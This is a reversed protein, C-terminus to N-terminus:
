GDGKNRHGQRGGPLGGGQSRRSYKRQPNRFFATVFILLVACIITVWVPLFVASIITVVVLPIIFPLGEVAVISKKNKM